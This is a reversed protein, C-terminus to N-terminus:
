ARRTPRSPPTHAWKWQNTATATYAGSASVVISLGVAGTSWTYTVGTQPNTITITDVGGECFPGTGSIALIPTDPLPHVVIPFLDSTDRCGTLPDTVIVAYNGTHILLAPFQSYIFFPFGVPVYVEDFPPGDDFIWQYSTWTSQTQLQIFDNVCYDQAGSITPNPLDNVIVEVPPTTYFCGNTMEVTVTFIGSTSVIISDTTAGNSWLYSVGGSPAFLTDTEGKCIVLPGIYSITDSDVPLIDIHVLTDDRCGLSDTVTLLVDVFGATFYTFLPNQLTSTASGDNYFDWLWSAISGSSIDTFSVVDGVCAPASHIFAAVPPSPIDVVDLFSCTFGTSTTVFLEITHTGPSLVTTPTLNNVYFPGSGDIFWEWLIINHGDFFVSQDYMEVEVVGGSDCNFELHFDAIMPILVTHKVLLLCSDKTPDINPFLASLGVDYSGPNTFTHTPSALTSTNSGGSAPDGFNWSVITGGGSIIFGSFSVTACTGGVAAFTFDFAANAVPICSTDPPPCSDLSVVITNSIASCGFSNTVTCFFSGVTTVVIASDTGGTNWLFTYGAGSLAYLTASVPGPICFATNSPISTILANPGPKVDVLVLVTGKCGNSNTVTLTVSYTGATTYTHTPNQLGSSTNGDDFDWEWDVGASGSFTFLTGACIPSPFTFSPTPASNLTVPISDILTSDCITVQLKVYGTTAVNGNANWQIIVSDGGSSVVTGLGPPCAKWTYVAGTLIPGSFSYIGISNLCAPDDGSIPPVTPTLQTVNFTLTDSKCFPSFPMKACVKIIYPGSSGWTINLSNGTGTTPTGGTIFWEFTPNPINSGFVQYYYTTNPCVMDEGVVLSPPAPAELVEVTVVASDNCFSGTDPKGIVTYTGTGANWTYTDFQTGFGISPLYTGGPTVVTWTSLVFAFPSTQLASFQLPSANVVNECLESPGIIFYEPRVEVNLEAHGSCDLFDNVYDVMVTYNGPSNWFIDVQHTGDGAIVTGGLPDVVTWTYVTGPIKPVTYTNVAGSCVLTDGLMTAISPLIPVVAVTPHPCLGPCTSGDLTITGFGSTGSGWAVTISDGAVSTSIITGGTVSWNYPSCSDPTWYTVTDGGCVTSICEIEPGPLSDVFVQIQATDTCNCENTVVLTVTYSGPILYKHNIVNPTGFANGDGMTWFWDKIDAFSSDGFFSVTQELCINIVGGIESPSYIVATPSPIIEICLKTSDICGNSDIEIVQISGSGVAGWTVTIENINPTNSIDGTVTWIYTSGTNFLTSYLVTSSDCAESCGKRGDPGSGGFPNQGPGGCGVPSATTIEPTPLPHITVDLTTTVNGSVSKEILTITASGSTGWLIKVENSDITTVIIGNTM